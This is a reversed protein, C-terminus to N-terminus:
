RKEFEWAADLVEDWRAKSELEGGRQQLTNRLRVMMFLLRARSPEPITGDALQVLIEDLKGTAARNGLVRVKRLEDRVDGM